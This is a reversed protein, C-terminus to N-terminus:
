VSMCIFQMFQYEQYKIKTTTCEPANKHLKWWDQEASSGVRLDPFLILTLCIKHSFCDFTRSAIAFSFSPTAKLWTAVWYLSSLALFPTIQSLIEDISTLLLEYGLWKMKSILTPVFRIRHLVVRFKSYCKKLIIKFIWKMWIRLREIDSGGRESM